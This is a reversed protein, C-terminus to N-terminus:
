ALELLYQRTVCHPVFGLAAYLAKPAESVHTGILISGMGGERVYEVARAIITTAIGRQRFVKLTFLDEVIGMGIPGHIASGYACDIGETSAIFFQAVHSKARYGAVISRTVDDDFLLHHSASGEVHNARVLPYLAQWDDETSVPRLDIQRSQEKLPGKSHKFVIPGELVMQLTPSLEKYNELALRAVFEPPTMPDVIVMRHGCHALVANARQLVQEIETQTKARVRSLHNAVWIDPHEANSVYRALPDDAVQNGVSQYWAYTECVQEIRQM